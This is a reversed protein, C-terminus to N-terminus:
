LGLVNLFVRQIPINNQHTGHISASAKNKNAKPIHFIQYAVKIIQANLKHNHNISATKDKMIAFHFSMSM